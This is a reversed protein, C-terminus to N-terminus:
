CIKEKLLKLLVKRYLKPMPIQDIGSVNYIAGLDKCYPFIYKPPHKYTAIFQSSISYPNNETVIDIQDKRQKDFTNRYSLGKNDASTISIIIPDLADVIKEIKSGFHKGDIILYDTIELLLNLLSLINKDLVEPYDEETENQAYGLYGLDNGLFNLQSFVEQKSIFPKALLKGISKGQSNKFFLTELASYTDDVTLVAVKNKRALEEALYYSLISKGLNGCIKILKGLEESGKM